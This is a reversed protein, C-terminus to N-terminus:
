LISCLFFSQAVRVGSFVPSFEHARSPYCRIQIINQKRKNKSTQQTSTKTETKDGNAFCRIYGPYKAFFIM